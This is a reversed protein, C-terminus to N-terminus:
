PLFSHKKLDVKSISLMQLKLIHFYLTKVELKTKVPSKVNDFKLDVYELVLLAPLRRVGASM